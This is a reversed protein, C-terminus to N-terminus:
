TWNQWWVYKAKLFRHCPVVWRCESQMFAYFLLDVLYDQGQWVTSVDVVVTLKETCHFLSHKKNLGGNVVITKWHDKSRQVGVISHKQLAWGNTEIPKWHIKFNQPCRDVIIQLNIITQSQLACCHINLVVPLPLNSNVAWWPHNNKILLKSYPFLVWNNVAFVVFKM